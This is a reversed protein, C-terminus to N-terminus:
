APREKKPRGLKRKVCQGWPGDGDSKPKQQGSAKLARLEAQKEHRWETVRAVEAARHEPTDKANARQSPMPGDEAVEPTEEDGSPPELAVQFAHNGKEVASYEGPALAGIPYLRDVIVRLEWCDYEVTSTGQLNVKWGQLRGTVRVWHNSPIGALEIAGRGYLVCPVVTFELFQHRKSYRPILLSFHRFPRGSRAIRLGGNPDLSSVMVQIRGCLSVTNESYADDEIKQEPVLGDVLFGKGPISTAM